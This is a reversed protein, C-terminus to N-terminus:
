FFVNKNENSKSNGARSKGREIQLFVPIEFYYKRKRVRDYVVRPQVLASFIQEVRKETLNVFGFFQFQNVSGDSGQTLQEECGDTKM